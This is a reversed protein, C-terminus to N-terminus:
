FQNWTLTTTSSRPRAWRASSLSTSLSCRPGPRYLAILAIIDELRDVGFKRCLDQMGGSELQFVAVTKGQNLLDYTPKDELPFDIPM